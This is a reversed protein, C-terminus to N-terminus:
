PKANYAVQEEIYEKFPTSIHLSKINMTINLNIGTVALQDDVLVRALRSDKFQLSGIPLLCVAEEEWPYTRWEQSYNNRRPRYQESKCILPTYKHQSIVIQNALASYDGEYIFFPSPPISWDLFAGQIKACCKSFSHDVFHHTILLTIPNKCIYM